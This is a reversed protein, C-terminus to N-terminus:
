DTRVPRSFGRKQEGEGAQQFGKLPPEAEPIPLDIGCVAIKVVPSANRHDELFREEEIRGNKVIDSGTQPDAAHPPRLDVPSDWAIETKETDAM